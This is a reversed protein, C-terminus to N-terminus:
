FKIIKISEKFGLRELVALIDILQLYKNNHKNGKINDSKPSIILSEFGKTTRAPLSKFAERLIEEEKWNKISVRVIQKM